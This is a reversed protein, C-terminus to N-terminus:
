LGLRDRRKPDDRETKEKEDINKFYNMNKLGYNTYLARFM